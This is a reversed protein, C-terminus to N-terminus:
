KNELKYIQGKLGQNEEVKEQKVCINLKNIIEKKRFQFKFHFPYM